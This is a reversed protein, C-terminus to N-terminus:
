TPQLTRQVHLHLEWQFLRTESHIPHKPLVASHYQNEALSVELYCLYELEQQLKQQVAIKHVEEEEEGVEVQVVTCPCSQESCQYLGTGKDEDEGEGVEEVVVGVWEEICPYPHHLAVPKCAAVVVV